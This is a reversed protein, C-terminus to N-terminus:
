VRKRKVAAKLLLNKYCKETVSKIVAKLLAKTKISKWQLKDYWFFVRDLKCITETMIKANGIWVEVKHLSLRYYVYLLLEGLPKGSASTKRGFFWIFSVEMVLNLGKKFPLGASRLYKVDIEFQRHYCTYNAHIIHM